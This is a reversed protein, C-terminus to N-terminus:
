SPLMIHVLRAFERQQLGDSEFSIGPVLYVRSLQTHPKWLDKECQRTEVLPMSLANVMQKNQM